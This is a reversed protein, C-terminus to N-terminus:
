ISVGKGQNLLGEITGRALILTILKFYNKFNVEANLLDVHKEEEELEYIRAELM